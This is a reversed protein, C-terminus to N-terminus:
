FIHVLLLFIQYMISYIISFHFIEPFKKLKRGSLIKEIHSFYSNYNPCAIITQEPPLGGSALFIKLFNTSIPLKFNFFKINIYM